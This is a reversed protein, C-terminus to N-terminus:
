YPRALEAAFSAEVLDTTKHPLYHPVPNVAMRSSEETPFRTTDIIRIKPELM